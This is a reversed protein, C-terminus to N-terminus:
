AQKLTLERGVAEVRSSMVRKEHATDHMLTAM